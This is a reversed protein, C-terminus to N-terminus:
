TLTVQKWGLLVGGRLIQTYMRTVNDVPDIPVWIMFAYADNYVTLDLVGYTFGGGFNSGNQIKFKGGKIANSGIDIPLRNADYAGFNHADSGIGSRSVSYADIGNDSPWVMVKGASPTPSQTLVTPKWDTGVLEIEVELGALIALSAAGAITTGSNATVTITSAGVNAVRKRAGDTMAPLTFSASAKLTNGTLTTTAYIDDDVVCAYLVSGTSTMGSWSRSSQGLATFTGVGGTQKYIDGDVVCAYVDGGFTTMGHWFRSTQGLAIFDGVGNTQKYIDGFRVCAYVDSGLTTMGTWKRSTQNLAIFDGIGSTQKYIDGDTVSAYVDGNLSTMGAWSRPQQNLAVFDGTGGTQKYIDRNYVCVYLDSGNATIGTWNRSTQGLGVFSGDGGTQKYIDGTNVCAYVDNGLATMCSWYRSGQSLGQLVSGASTFDLVGRVQNIEVEAAEVGNELNNMHDASFATGPVTVTGPAAYLDVSSANENVKTFRNPYQVERAQWVTKDYVM